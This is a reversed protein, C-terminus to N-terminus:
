KDKHIHSTTLSSGVTHSSKIDFIFWNVHQFDISWEVTPNMSLHIQAVLRSWLVVQKVIIARTLNISPVADSKLVNNYQIRSSQSSQPSNYNTSVGRETFGRLSKEGFWRLPPDSYGSNGFLRFGWIAFCCAVHSIGWFVPGSSTYLQDSTAILIPNVLLARSRILSEIEIRLSQVQHSWVQRDIIRSPISIKYQFNQATFTKTLSPM